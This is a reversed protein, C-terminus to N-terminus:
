RIRCFLTNYEDIGMRQDLTLGDVYGEAEHEAAKFEEFTDPSPSACFVLGDYDVPMRVTYVSHVIRVCDGVNYEWKSSVMYDLRVEEGNIYLLKSYTNEDASSDNFLTSVPLWEGTYYDFLENSCGAYYQGSQAPASSSLFYCSAQFTIERYLDNVIEDSITTMAWEGYATIYYSGDPNYYRLANELPYRGEDMEMDFSYGGEEFYAAPTFDPLEAQYLYDGYNSNMGGEGDLTFRLPDDELCLEGDEMYYYGTYSTGDESFWEYTGDGYIYIWEYATSFEWCGYFDEANVAEISEPEKKVSDAKPSEEGIIDGRGDNEKEGDGKGCGSLLPLLLCFCSLCALLRRTQKRKM